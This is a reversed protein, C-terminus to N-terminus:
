QYVELAIELASMSADRAASWYRYGPGQRPCPSYHILALYALIGTQADLICLLGLRYALLHIM